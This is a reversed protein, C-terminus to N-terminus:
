SPIPCPTSSTGVFTKAKAAPGHYGEAQGNSRGKERCRESTACGSARLLVPVRLVHGTCCVGLLCVLTELRFFQLVQQHVRLLVTVSAHIQLPSRHVRHMCHVVKLGGAASTCQRKPFGGTCLNGAAREGSAFSVRQALHISRVQWPKTPLNFTATRAPADITFGHAM